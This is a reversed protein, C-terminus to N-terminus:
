RGFCIRGCQTVSVLPETTSLTTFSASLQRGGKQKESASIAVFAVNARAPRADALARVLPGNRRGEDLDILCNTDLTFRTAV